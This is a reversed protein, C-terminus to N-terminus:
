RVPLAEPGISALFALTFLIFSLAASMGVPVLTGGYLLPVSYGYGVVALIGTAMVALAPVSAANPLSQMGKSSVRFIMSLSAVALAASTIFSMGGPTDNGSHEMFFSGLGFHIGTAAAIFVTGCILLVLFACWLAVLRLSAREPHRLHGLLPGSLLFFCLAILPTGPALDRARFGSFWLAAVFVNIGITIFLSYESIHRLRCEANDNHDM